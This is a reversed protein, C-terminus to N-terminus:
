SQATPSAWNRVTAAQLQHRLPKAAKAPQPRYLWMTALLAAVLYPKSVTLLSEIPGIPLLQLLIFHALVFVAVVGALAILRCRWGTCARQALALLPIGLPVFALSILATMLGIVLPIPVDTPQDFGFDLVLWGTGGLNSLLWIYLSRITASPPPSSAYLTQM